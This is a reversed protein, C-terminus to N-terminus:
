STKIGGIYERNPNIAMFIIYLLEYFSDAIRKIINKESPRNDNYYSIDRFKINRKPNVLLEHM